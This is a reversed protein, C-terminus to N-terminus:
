KIMSDLNEKATKVAQIGRLLAITDSISAHNEEADKKAEGFKKNEAIERELVKQVQRLNVIQESISRM